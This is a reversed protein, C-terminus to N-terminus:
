NAVLEFTTIDTFVRGFMDNVRVEIQQTGIEGVGYIMGKWLHTSLSAPTPRKGNLLRESKDWEYIQQLFVPDYEMVRTLGKWEGGNIRYSLSDLEGGLYYNVYVNARTKEHKLLVKPMHIHMKKNSNNGVTKYDVTYENNNFNIIAYGKPTGDAMM